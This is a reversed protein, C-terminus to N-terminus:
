VSCRRAARRSRRRGRALVPEVRRDAIGMEAPVDDRFEVQRAARAVDFNAAHARQAAAVGAAGEPGDVPRPGSIFLPVWWPFASWLEGRDIADNFRGWTDTFWVLPVGGPFAIDTYGDFLAFRPAVARVAPRGNALLLEAATGDYSDGLAGVVGSSWPQRVIWDVLEGGDGVEADSWLSTQM